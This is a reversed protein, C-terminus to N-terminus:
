LGEGPKRCDPLVKESIGLEDRRECSMGERTSTFEEYTGNELRYFFLGMIGCGGKTAAFQEEGDYNYIEITIYEGTECSARKEVMDDLFSVIKAPTDKTPSFFDRTVVENSEAKPFDPFDRLFMEISGDGGVALASQSYKGTETYFKIPATFSFNLEPDAVIGKNTVIPRYAYPGVYWANDIQQVFSINPETSLSEVKYIRINGKQEAQLLINAYL